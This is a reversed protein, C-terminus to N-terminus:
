SRRVGDVAVLPDRHQRVGVRGQLQGDDVHPQGLAGPVLFVDLGVRHAHVLDLGVDEALVFVANGFVGSHAELFHPTGSHVM